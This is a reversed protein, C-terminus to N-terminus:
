KFFIASFSQRFCDLIIAIIIIVIFIPLAFSFIISRRTSRKLLSQKRITATSTTTVLSAVASGRRLYYERAIAAAAAAAAAAAIAVSVFIIPITFSMGTIINSHCIMSPPAYRRRRRRRGGGGRCLCITPLLPWRSFAACVAGLPVYLHVSEQFTQLLLTCDGLLHHNEVIM